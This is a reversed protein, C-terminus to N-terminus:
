DAGLGRVAERAQFPGQGLGTAAEPQARGRGWGEELRRPSALPAGAAGVDASFRGLGTGQSGGPRTRGGRRGM